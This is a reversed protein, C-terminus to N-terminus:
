FRWVQADLKRLDVAPVPYKPYNHMSVGNTVSRRSEFQGTSRQGLRRCNAKGCTPQASIQCQEPQEWPQLGWSTPTSPALHRTFPAVSYAVQQPSPSSVSPLNRQRIGAPAFRPLFNDFFQQCGYPPSAVSGHSHSDEELGDGPEESTQSDSSAGPLSLHFGTFAGPDSFGSGNSSHPSGGASGPSIQFDNREGPMYMCPNMPIDIAQAESFASNYSVPLHSSM